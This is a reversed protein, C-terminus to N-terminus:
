TPMAEAVVEALVSLPMGGGLFVADHFAKVSFRGGLRAKALDRQRLFALQGMKYSCAQGPWVVYREIERRANDTTQGGEEVLYAVARERSWGLAHVGTDVVLRCSRFLDDQLRGLRGVPDADYVGLEDAVQEAYLAGGENYANPCFLKFLEPLGETENLLETQFHHGPYGEHYIVTPLRWRPWNATSSLNFYIAGPLSYASPAGLQTEVPVRRIDMPRKPIRNFAAPLRRKVDETRERVYALLATRGAEDNPFLQAPDTALAALRASVSGSRHGLRVLLREVEAKTAAVCDLGVRHVQAPTDGTTTHFRLATEYFAAGGPRDRLGAVPVARRRLGDMHTRQRALAAAVPGDVLAIARKEWDGPIGAKGAGDALARVLGAQAGRRAALAGIQALARDCIFDPPIIGAAGDAASTATDQDIARAFQDLRALYADCDAADAITHQGALLDPVEYYAGTLQTVPYPQPYGYMAVSLHPIRQMERAAQAFWLTTKIWQRQRRDTGPPLASLAPEAALFPAMVGLRNAEGRDDLRRKPAGADRGFLTAYQPSASLCDANIRDLLANAADPGAARASQPMTALVGLSLGSGIFGRRDM